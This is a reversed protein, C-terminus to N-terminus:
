MPDHADDRVVVVEWRTLVKRKVIERMLLVMFWERRSEHVEGTLKWEEWRRPEPAPGVTRRRVECMQEELAGFHEESTERVRIHVSM